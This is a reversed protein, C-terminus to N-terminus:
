HSHPAPINRPNGTVEVLSELHGPEIARHIRARLAITHDQTAAHDAEQHTRWLSIRGVQEKDEVGAFRFGMIYGGMKSVHEELEDLLREVAVKQGPSPKMISIRAVTM